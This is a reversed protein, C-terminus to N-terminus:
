SVSVQEGLRLHLDQQLTEQKKIALQCIHLEKLSQEDKVELDFVKVVLRKLMQSVPKTAAPVM